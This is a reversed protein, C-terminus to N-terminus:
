LLAEEIKKFIEDRDEKTKFYMCVNKVECGNYYEIFLKWEPYVFGKDITRISSVNFISGGVEIFKPYSKRKM